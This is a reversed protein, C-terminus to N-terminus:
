RKQMQGAIRLMHTRYEEASQHGAKRLKKLCSKCVYITVQKDGIPVVYETTWGATYRGCDSCTRYPSHSSM